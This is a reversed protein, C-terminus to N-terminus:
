FSGERRQSKSLISDSSQLRKRSGNSKNAATDPKVRGSARVVRYGRWLVLENDFDFFEAGRTLIKVQMGSRPLKQGIRPSFMTQNVARM